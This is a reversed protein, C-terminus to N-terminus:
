QDGGEGPLVFEPEHGEARGRLTLILACGACYAKLGGQVRAQSTPSLWIAGRCDTCPAQVSGPVARYFPLTAVLRSIVIDKM